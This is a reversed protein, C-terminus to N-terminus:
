SNEKVTFYEKLPSLIHKIVPLCWAKGILKQRRTTPLNGVDTYHSPFGFVRELEPIWIGDDMGDMQVPFYEDKKGFKLSNTRTTVTRLKPIVAQRNCNAQLSSDLSVSKHLKTSIEPTSYLGPINGWFYRARHQATFYKSDWLAPQCDLFRSIHAMYETKMSSVNEYLWFLHRDRYNTQLYKLVRFFDFFLVGSGGFGKRDPNALSFDNCPSGGILLDVPGIQPLQSKYNLLQVDGIQVISDGHNARTVMLADKDVESSYYVDVAIGLQDLALKCTGIGDFLSLVRIPRKEKFYNLNPKEIRYGTDFFSVMEEEWNTKPRLMGHTSPEFPSCLFCMWSKRAQINASIEPGCFDGVCDFCYVRSCALSDCIFLKGGHGCITCYAHLGDEAFAYCTEMLSEKCQQCLGGEFLPHQCVVPENLELCSICVDSIFFFVSLSIGYHQRKMPQHKLCEAHPELPIVETHIWCNKITTASVIDWATIARQESGIAEIASDTDHTEVSYPKRAARNRIEEGIQKLRTLIYEPIPNDPVPEFSWIRSKNSFKFGGAAFKLLAEESDLDSPSDNRRWYEWLAEVAPKKVKKNFKSSYGDVFPMIQEHAIQSVKHDGFWFIWSMNTNDGQLYVQSGKIVMGPWWREGALRAWVLKGYNPENEMVSNM